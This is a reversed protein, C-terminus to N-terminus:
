AAGACDTKAITERTVDERPIVPLFSGGPRDVDRVPKDTSQYIEGVGRYDTRPPQYRWDSGATERLLSM